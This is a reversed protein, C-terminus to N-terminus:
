PIRLHADGGPEHRLVTYYSDLGGSFFSATRAAPDPASAPLLDVEVPVPETVGPYWGRWVQMLADIGERLGPDVPLSITLPEKRTVALPLLAALWPNGTSSLHGAFAEPVDFWIQEPRTEEGRFVIEGILRRRAAGIPSSTQEVRTLKM